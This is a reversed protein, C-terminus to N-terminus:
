EGQQIGIEVRFNCTKARTKTGRGKAFGKNIMGLKKRYSDVQEATQNAEIGALGAKRSETNAIEWVEGKSEVNSVGLLKVLGRRSM